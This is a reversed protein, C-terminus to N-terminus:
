RSARWRRRAACAPTSRAQRVEGLSRGQRADRVATGIEALSVGNREVAELDVAVDIERPMAGELEVRAVGDIREIRRVIREDILEYSGALDVNSSLRVEMVPDDADSYSGIEVNQVFDPLEGRVRDIRDRLELKSGDADVGPEFELNLRVGWGGSGIQMRQVGRLGAVAEELPRVLERELVEPSTRTIDVRVFLRSAQASPLYTLPLRMFGIVGLLVLALLGM